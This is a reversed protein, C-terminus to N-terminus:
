YPGLADVRRRKVLQAPVACLRGTTSPAPKVIIGSDSIRRRKHRGSGQQRTAKQTLRNVSARGEDSLADRVNAGEAVSSLVRSGAMLGERGLEKAVPALAHGAKAALPVIFRWLRRLVDGVGAGRQLFRGYGRQYMDGMFYGSGHQNCIDELSVKSVGFRVHVM